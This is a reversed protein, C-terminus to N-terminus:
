NKLKNFTAVNNRLVFDFIVIAAMAEVVAVARPVICPDHRGNKNELKKYNGDQVLITDIKKITSTPKFAVNFYITDGNSIGGLVGGSNNSEFRFKENEKYINDNHESGKMEACKFGSGIEFGKSANISLMAKALEADLRDFVPEGLGIPCNDVICSVIGGISDGEEKVKTILDIMESATKQDPCHVDNKEINEFDLLGFDPNIKIHGVQSVFATIKIGLFTLFQKAIAGAAVRSATERASSRGGGKYDRIGYKEQYTVDAHSPRFANEYKDYDSSKQDKNRITLCIPAGTTKSEFLGSVIEVLDDEKRQTTISSQGPKRKDLEKQIKDIDITFGAPCGDIVAGIMQGHSEGFTTVKFIQGISNGAM